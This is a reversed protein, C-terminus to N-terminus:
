WYFNAFIQLTIILNWGSFSRLTMLSEAAISVASFKQLFHSIPIFFRQLFRPHNWAARLVLFLLSFLSCCRKKMKFAGTSESFKKKKKKTNHEMKQLSLMAASAIYPNFINEVFYLNIQQSCVVWPHWM